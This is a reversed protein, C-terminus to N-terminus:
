MTKAIAAKKGSFYTRKAKGVINWLPLFAAGAAM